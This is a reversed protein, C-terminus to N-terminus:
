EWKSNAIEQLSYFYESHPDHQKRYMEEVRKILDINIVDKYLQAFDGNIEINNVGDLELPTSPPTKIYVPENHNKMIQFACYHALKRFKPEYDLSFLYMKNITDRFFGYGYVNEESPNNYFDKDYIIFDYDGFYIMLSESKSVVNGSKKVSRTSLGALIEKVQTKTIKGKRILDSYWGNQLYERVTKEWTSLANRYGSSTFGGSTYNPNHKYWLKALLKGLGKNRYERAVAILTARWEDDAIGIVYGKSNIIAITQGSNEKYPLSSTRIQINENGIKVTNIINPYKKLNRDKVPNILHEVTSIYKVLKTKKPKLYHVDNHYTTIHIPFINVDLYQNHYLIDDHIIGVLKHNKLIRYGMQNKYVKYSRFDFAHSESYDNNLGAVDYDYSSSDHFKDSPNRFSIFEDKTMLGIDIKKESHPSLVEKLFMDYRLCFKYVYKDFFPTSPSLTFTYLGTISNMRRYSNVLTDLIDSSM